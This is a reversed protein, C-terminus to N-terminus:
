MPFKRDSNPMASNDHNDERGAETSLLRIGERLILLAPLAVMIGAIQFYERRAIYTGFPEVLWLFSLVALVWGSSTLLFAYLTRASLIRRQTSQGPPSARLLGAAGILVGVIACIASVVSAITNVGGDM